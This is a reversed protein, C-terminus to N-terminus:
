DGFEPLRKERMDVGKHFPPAIMKVPYHLTTLRLVALSLCLMNPNSVRYAPLANLPNCQRRKFDTLAFNNFETNM